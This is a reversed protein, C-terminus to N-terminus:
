ANIADCSDNLDGFLHSADLALDLLSELTFSKPEFTHNVLIMKLNIEIM